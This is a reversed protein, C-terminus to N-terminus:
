PTDGSKKRKTRWVDSQEIMKLLSIPTTPYGLPKLVAELYAVVNGRVSGDKHKYATLEAPDEANLFLLGIVDEVYTKRGTIKKKGRQRKGSPRRQALSAVRELWVMNEKATEIQLHMLNVALRRKKAPGPPLKKPQWTLDIFTTSDYPLSPDDLAMRQAVFVFFSLTFKDFQELEKLATQVHKRFAEYHKNMIAIALDSGFSQEYAMSFLLAADYLDRYLQVRDFGVRPRFTSFIATLEDRTYLTQGTRTLDFIDRLGIHKWTQRPRSGTRM